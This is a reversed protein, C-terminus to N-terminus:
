PQLHAGRLFCGSLNPWLASVCGKFRTMLAGRLFLRPNPFSMRLASPWFLLDVIEAQPIAVVWLVAMPDQFSM